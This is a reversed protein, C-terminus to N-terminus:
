NVYAIAFEGDAHDGAVKAPSAGWVDTKTGMTQCGTVPYCGMYTINGKTFNYRPAFTLYGTRGIKVYLTYTLNSASSTSWQFSANAKIYSKDGATLGAGWNETSTITEGKSIPCPLASGTCNLDASAKRPTMLESWKQKESYYSMDVVNLPNVLEEADTNKYLNSKSSIQAALIRGKKLSEMYKELPVPTGDAKFAEYYKVNDKEDILVKEGNEYIIKM